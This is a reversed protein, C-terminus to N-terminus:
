DVNNMALWRGYEIGEPCPGPYGPCGIPEAEAPGTAALVARLHHALTAAEHARAISTGTVALVGIAKEAKQLARRLRYIKEDTTM